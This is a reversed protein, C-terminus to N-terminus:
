SSSAMSRPWTRLGRSCRCTASARSSRRRGGRMRGGGTGHVTHRLKLPASLVSRVPLQSAGAGVKQLRTPRAEHRRPGDPPQLQPSAWAPLCLCACSRVAHTPPRVHPRPWPRPEPCPERRAPPATRGRVPDTDRQLWEQPPLVHVLRAPAQGSWVAPWCAGGHRVLQRGEGLLSQRGGLAQGGERRIRHGQGTSAGARATARAAPPSAAAGGTWAAPRTLAATSAAAALPM